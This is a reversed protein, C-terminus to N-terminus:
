IAVCEQLVQSIDALYTNHSSAIYYDSMPKQMEDLSKWRKTDRAMNGDSILIEVFDEFSLRKRAVDRNEFSRFISGTRDEEHQEAKWFEEFAECSM